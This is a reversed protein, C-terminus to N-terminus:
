RLKRMVREVADRAENLGQNSGDSHALKFTTHLELLDKARKLDPDEGDESDKQSSQTVNDGEPRASALALAASSDQIEILTRTTGEGHM